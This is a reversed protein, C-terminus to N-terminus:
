RYKKDREDLPVREIAIEVDRAAIVGFLVAGAVGGLLAGIPMFTFFVLMGSYGEFNSTKFLEVWAIGAGIGVAAGGLLGLMLGLLVLLAIKM